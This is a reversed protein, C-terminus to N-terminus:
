ATSGEPALEEHAPVTEHEDAHGHGHGHAGEVVELEKLGFFDLMCPIDVTFALYAHVTMMIIFAWNLVYHLLRIWVIGTAGVIMATLDYPGANIVPMQARWILLGTIIQAIMMYLFLNYSGKQAVNYKAVHPKENSLYGYYKLIGPLSQVDVKGIAFERWDANTKSRFAYWVRWVVTLTVAIMVVYHIYRMATRGGDFFPFRIYMGSVALIIMGFMHIAHAVKPAAPPRSDHTPWHGEFFCKRFRGTIVFMSFHWTLFLWVCIYVIVFLLDAWTYLEPLSM